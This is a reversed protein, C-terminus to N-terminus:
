NTKEATVTEIFGRTNREITFKWRSAKQEIVQVKVDAPSVRIEPRIEPTVNVSPPSVTVNPASVNVIPAKQEKEQSKIIEDILRMILASISPEWERGDASMIKVGSNKLRIADKLSITEAM